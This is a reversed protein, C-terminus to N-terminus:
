LAARRHHPGEHLIQGRVCAAYVGFITSGIKRRTTHECGSLEDIFKDLNRELIQSFPEIIDAKHSSDHKFSGIVLM